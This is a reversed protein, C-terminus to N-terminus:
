MRFESLREKLILSANELKSSLEVLHDSVNQQEGSLSAVEESHLPNRQLPASM